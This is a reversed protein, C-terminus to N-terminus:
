VVSKRDLQNETPWTEWKHGNCKRCVYYLNHYTTILEPFKSKPKFHDVEFAEDGGMYEETRECYACQGRFERRLLPIHDRYNSTVPPNERREFLAM